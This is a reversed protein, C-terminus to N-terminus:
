YSFTGLFFLYSSIKKKSETKAQKENKKRKKKSKDYKGIENKQKNEM